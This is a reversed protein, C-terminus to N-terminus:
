TNVKRHAKDLAEVAKTLEPMREDDDFMGDGKTNAEYVTEDGCNPYDARFRGHRLRLYGAQKGNGDLVDYQEPCAMSTQKLTYGGIRLDPEDWNPDNHTV